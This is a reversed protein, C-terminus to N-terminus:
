DRPSPSRSANVWFYLWGLPTKLICVPWTDMGLSTWHIEESKTGVCPLPTAPFCSIAALGCNKWPAGCLRPPPKRSMIGGHQTRRNFALHCLRWNEFILSHTKLILFIVKHILWLSQLSTPDRPLPIAAHPLLFNLGESGMIIIYGQLCLIYHLFLLAGINIFSECVTYTVNAASKLILDISCSILLYSLNCRWRYRGSSCHIEAWPILCTVRLCAVDKRCQANETLSNLSM